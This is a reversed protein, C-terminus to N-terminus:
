FSEVQFHVVIDAGLLMWRFEPAEDSLIKYDGWDKMQGKVNQFSAMLRHTRVIEDNMRDNSRLNWLNTFVEIHRREVQGMQDRFHDNLNVVTMEPEVIKAFLLNKSM